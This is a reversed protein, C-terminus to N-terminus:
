KDIRMRRATEELGTPSGIEFPRSDVVYATLENDAILRQNVVTLDAPQGPALTAFADASFASLGSDVYEADPWRVQKDYRTVLGGSVSANPADTGSGRYRYVAMLGARGSSEFARVVDSYDVAHYVDGFTVLFRDGLLPLAARVAGATGLPVEGDSIYRVHVGFAAGDGAYEAIMEGLYGTLLVVDCVGRRRLSRLLPGLFPEGNVDILPKPVRLTHPRM